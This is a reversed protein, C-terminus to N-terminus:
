VLTSPNDSPNSAKYHGLFPIIEERSSYGTTM